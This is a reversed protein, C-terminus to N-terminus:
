LVAPKIKALKIVDQVKEACFNSVGINRVLGERVLEEMAAWTEGITVGLDLEIRPKAATEDHVFGPVKIPPPRYKLAIPYHILYLDLYDLKLDKLSRMVAARVNEKRHFYNWLKSM